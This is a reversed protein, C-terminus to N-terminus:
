QRSSTQLFTSSRHPLPSACVTLIAILLPGPMATTCASVFFLDITAELIWMPAPCYDNVDFCLRLPVMFANYLLFIMSVTDWIIRTPSHPHISIRRYWEPAGVVRKYRPLADTLSSVSVSRAPSVPPKSSGPSKMPSGSPAAPSPQPLAITTSSPGDTGGGAMSASRSTRTAPSELQNASRHERLRPLRRARVRRAHVRRACQIPRLSSSTILSVCFNTHSSLLSECADM